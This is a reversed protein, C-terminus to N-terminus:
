RTKIKPLYFWLFIFLCIVFAIGIWLITYDSKETLKTKEITITKTIFRNNWKEIIKDKNNTIIVNVYEKKDIVMPKANDFPKYTFSNGLVIKSGNSYTNNISISDRQQNDTKRTGCGSLLLIIIIALITSIELSHEKM